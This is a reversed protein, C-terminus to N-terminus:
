TLIYDGLEPQRVRDYFEGLTWPMQVGPRGFSNVYYGGGGKETEWLMKKMERDLDANYTEFAERRVEIVECGKELTTVIASCIYRTLIEMWSHFSGARVGANPGYLMFFNPFGPMTMTLHARAGDQNWLDELTAGDRGLYRVPWLYQSVKFGAGLVVLDFKTEKGGSFIGDPTFRDIGATNLTVNPRVLTDYWGNDVVLRRAMPAYSPVLKDFLDDRSGVKRRIYRTLGERLKDNTENILGGAAQWTPDIEHLNQTQMQAMHHSYCYWNSYGPMTDLLWRKEATVMNHYGRVPTVWNPTRQYVTLHAGRRALDPMLQSGTSGTGILAINKGAYDYDHDWATTHFIKGQFDAIGPIDPLNPTSFLGSASILVNTEFQEEMGGDREISVTWRRSAENWRADTLKTSTEISQRLKYTDAVYDIYQKLEDRTAFYSKWPYNKVFKYQYLFTTIDVRAEPYDNLEWTGGIDAQREIIRYRIGLRGLHIGAVLGSFGAGIITVMFDDLAAPRKGAAWTAERPFEDFALEEYGYAASAADLATGQFLAMLELAQVRDPIALAKDPASTLFEFARQKLLEHSERAVVYSLFPTGPPADTEVKMAAIEPDGTQQYLAVRLANLHAQELARRVFTEEVAARELQQGKRDTAM